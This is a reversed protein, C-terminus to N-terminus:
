VRGRRRGSNASVILEVPLDCTSGDYLTLRIVKCRFAKGVKFYVGDCSVAIIKGIGCEVLNLVIENHVLDIFKNKDYNVVSYGGPTTLRYSNKFYTCFKTDVGFPAFIMDYIRNIMSSVDVCVIDLSTQVGTWDLFDPNCGKTLLTTHDISLQKDGVLVTTNVPIRSLVDYNAVHMTYEKIDIFRECTTSGSDIDNFVERIAIIINHSDYTHLLHKFWEIFTRDKLKIDSRQGVSVPKLFVRLKQFDEESQLYLMELEKCIEAVELKSYDLNEVLHIYPMSVSDGDEMYTSVPVEKVSSTRLITRALTKLYPRLDSYRSNQNALAMEFAKSMAEDAKGKNCYRFYGVLSQLAEAVRIPYDASTNISFSLM